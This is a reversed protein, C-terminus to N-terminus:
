HESVPVPNGTNHRYNTLAIPRTPPCNSLSTRGTPMPPVGNMRASQILSMVAAARQGARLNGVFLWNSRGVAIPRIQNEIWNNEVPLQGDNVFRTLAVWRRLSYDLARATTSSDPMKQRQLAMWQRLTDLVSQSHQQRIAKRQEADFEKVEREIDYVRDAQELAFRAIQSKNTADLDFFKHGAQALCGVETVSSAILVKYGSFDDCRRRGKWDGL